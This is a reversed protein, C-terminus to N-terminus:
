NARQFEICVHHDSFWLAVWKFSLSQGNPENIITMHNDVPNAGKEWRKGMRESRTSRRLTHSEELMDEAEDLPEQGSKQQSLSGQM